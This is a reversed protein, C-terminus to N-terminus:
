GSYLHWESFVVKFTADCPTMRLLVSPEPPEPLEPVLAPTLAARLVPHKQPSAGKDCFAKASHAASEVQKRMHFIPLRRMFTLYYGSRSM